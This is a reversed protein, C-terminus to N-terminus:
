RFIVSTCVGNVAGRISISIEFQGIRGSFCEDLKPKIAAQFVGPSLADALRRGILEERKMGHFKLFAENAILYRYDRDVVVIM